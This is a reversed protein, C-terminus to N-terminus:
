QIGLHILSVDRQTHSETMSVGPQTAEDFWSLNFYSLRALSLLGQGDITKLIMRLILKSSLPVFARRGNASRHWRSLFHSCADVVKEGM